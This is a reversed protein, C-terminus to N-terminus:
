EFSHEPAPYSGDRVANVYNEVAEVVSSSGQMFDKVFKPKKGPTIGLMDHLVLVQADTHPGAGIGVVPVKSNETIEEALLTPVCELLLIAAGAEELIRADELMQLAATQERGQVKYGGLVNVSQPTLGLHVCVPVGMETLKSVTEAMARGGELKVMHAGARMLEAANELAQDVNSYSMFPLDSMILAGQNGKAVSQTHYAMHEVTVPLTSSEGQLVMGLSDGVLIVEVGASSVLNAFSADYATLMAFKRGNRKHEILTQLNVSSM